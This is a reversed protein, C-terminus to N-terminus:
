WVGRCCKSACIPRVTVDVPLRPTSPSIDDVLWTEAGDGDWWRRSIVFFRCGDGSLRLLLFSGIQSKGGSVLARVVQAESFKVEDKLEARDM